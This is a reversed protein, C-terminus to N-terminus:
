HSFSREMDVILKIITEFATEFQPKNPVSATASLWGRELSKTNIDSLTESFNQPLETERFDFCRKLAQGLIDADAKPLFTAIDHVDKSRSNINGHAILAHLKEAIITEIPYVSWSLNEQPSLLTPTETAKPGPTIPDGIGVDFHVIQAKKLNKLVEGIGSRYIQRIGGYEGQTALDVQNEFRFWVGDDLDTESCARARELTSDVSAQVVLADVDVTYRSSNYVKLGVFGGKFVLHKNLEEDATLRAVLRELIFATELNQYPVGLDVSLNILKQRVSSGKAKTTM